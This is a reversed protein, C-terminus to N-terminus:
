FELMNIKNVFKYFCFELKELINFTFRMIKVSNWIKMTEVILMLQRHFLLFCVGHVLIYSYRKGCAGRYINLCAM